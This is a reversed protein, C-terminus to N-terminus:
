IHKWTRRKKIDNVSGFSMGYEEAITRQKRTDNRIDIVQKGTLKSRGQLEGKQNRSKNIMDNINDLYTGLFLHNPNVCERRDCRHLVWMDKPIEGVFIEYSMRNACRTKSKYSFCGYGTDKISGQWDWCKDTKIVKALFRCKLSCYSESFYKAVYSEKCYKCVKATM